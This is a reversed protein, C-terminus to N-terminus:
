LLETNVSKEKCMRSAHQSVPLNTESLERCGSKIFENLNQHILRLEKLESEETRYLSYLKKHKNKLLKYEQQLKSLNMNQISLGSHQLM